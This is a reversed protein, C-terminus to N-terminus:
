PSLSKVTQIYGKPLGLRELIPCFKAQYDSNFAGKPEQLLNYIQATIREREFLVQCEQRQYSKAAEISYM